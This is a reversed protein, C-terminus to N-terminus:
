KTSEERQGNEATEGASVEPEWLLFEHLLTNVTEPCEMMVMHSGEDIIKLFAILLIQPTFVDTILEARCQHPRLSM